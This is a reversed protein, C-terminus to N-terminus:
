YRNVNVVHIESSPRAFQSPAFEPEPESLAFEAEAAQSIWRSVEPNAIALTVAAIGLLVPIVLFNTGQHNFSVKDPKGFEDFSGHMSAEM